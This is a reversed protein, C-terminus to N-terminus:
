HFLKLTNQFLPNKVPTWPCRPKLFDKFARLNNTFDVTYIKWTLPKLKWWIGLPKIVGSLYSMTRCLRNTVPGRIKLQDCLKGKKGSGRHLWIVLESWHSTHLLPLCLKRLYGILSPDQGEEGRGRAIIHLCLSSSWYSIRVLLHGQSNFGHVVSCCFLLWPGLM